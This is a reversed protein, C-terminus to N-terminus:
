AFSSRLLRKEINAVPRSKNSEKTKDVQSMKNQNSKAVPRRPRRLEAPTSLYIDVLTPDLFPIRVELGNGAMARDVRLGDFRHIDQLLRICEEHVVQPSPAKHFYM